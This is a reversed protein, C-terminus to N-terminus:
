VHARGIEQGKINLVMIESYSKTEANQFDLLQNRAFSRFPEFTAQNSAGPTLIKLTNRSFDSSQSLREADTRISNIVENIQNEKLKSVTELVNLVQSENNVYAGIASLVTALLTPITVILVFAITGRWPTAGPGLRGCPDVCAAAVGRPCAICVCRARDPVPSTGHSRFLM